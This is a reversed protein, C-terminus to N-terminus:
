GPLDSSAPSPTLVQSMFVVTVDSMALTFKMAMAATHM